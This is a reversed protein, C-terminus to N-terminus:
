QDSKIEIGKSSINIKVEDSEVKIGDSDIKVEPTDVEVNFDEDPCDLCKSNNDMIRIFHNTNKDSILHGEHNNHRIFDETNSSFYVVTNEPLYLIIDVEQDNYKNKIDTTLFADLLLTKNKVEYHYNINKARAIATEYNRGNASKIISLTAVTDSTSKVMIRVDSSYMIKNGNDDHALKFDDRSFSSNFKDSHTMKVMLTDNAKIFLENKKIYSEEFAHESAQRIGFIVLTIISLIWLGLLTFKAINGISKLNNILIKLGLYFLFFFPIGVAFFIALSVLWIPTNGVNVLDLNDLGPIHIIDAVGMSFLGIVLAILTSAGIIILLIGIFKAFIKLLIMVADALSDFFTKSTSKISNTGKKLDVNKAAKSVSDSVNKAVQSVNDFGDKIKKEINSINVPEGTMMIKEATTKAEPVLIWLLIYLLVGTGAGFVLLIWALRVWIADIGFYHALGSSVGSIYSNDPDRFLKKSRTSKNQNTSPDDEFIEEDVVYDEPQGMISIIEDVERLRIVQKNNQLRENFLEAIRAEIDAIIEDSGQSNALSRKISELYGQLKLYADEDIHFFIGGLNINVTKNM